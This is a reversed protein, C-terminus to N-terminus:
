LLPPTTELMEVGAGSKFPASAISLLGDLGFRAQQQRLTACVRAVAVPLGDALGLPAARPRRKQPAKSAPCPARCAACEQAAALWAPACSPPADAAPQAPKLVRLTPPQHTVRRPEHTSVRNAELISSVWAAPSCSKSFTLTRRGSSTTELESYPGHRPTQIPETLPGKIGVDCARNPRTTGFRRGM